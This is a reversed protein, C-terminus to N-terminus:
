GRKPPALMSELNPLPAPWQDTEQLWEKERQLTYYLQRYAERLASSKQFRALLADLTAAYFQRTNLGGLNCLFGDQHIGWLASYHALLGETECALQEGVSPTETILLVPADSRLSYVTEGPKCITELWGGFTFCEVEKGKQDHLIVRGPSVPQTQKVPSDRHLTIYIARGNQCLKLRLSTPDFHEGTPKDRMAVLLGTHGPSEPHAQPLFFYGWNKM